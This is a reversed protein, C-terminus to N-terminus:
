VLQSCYYSDKTKRDFYNWNYPKGIQTFAWDSAPYTQDYYLWPHKVTHPMLIYLTSKKPRGNEWGMWDNSSGQYVGDHWPSSEVTHTSDLILGAHGIFSSGSQTSGDKTALVYGPYTTRPFPEVDGDDSGGGSSRLSPMSGTGAYYEFYKNGNSDSYFRANSNKAKAKAKIRAELKDFLKLEREREAQWDFGPPMGFNNPVDPSAKVMFPTSFLVLSVTLSVLLRLKQKFNSKM